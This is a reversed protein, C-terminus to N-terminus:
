ILVRVPSDVPVCRPEQILLEEAKECLATISNLLMNRDSASWAHGLHRLSELVSNGTSVPNFVTERSYNRLFETLTDEIKFSIDKGDTEILPLPDFIFGNYALKVSHMALTHKKVKCGLCIGEYIRRGIASDSDPFDHNAEIRLKMTIQQLTSIPSRFLSSSGRFSSSAVAHLFIELSFKDELKLGMSQMSIKAENEIMVNDVERGRAELIDATM